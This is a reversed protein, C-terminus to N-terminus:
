WAAEIVDRLGLLNRFEYLPAPTFRGRPEGYRNIWAVQMGMPMAGELDAFQSLSVHLIQDAPVGLKEIAHKFILASPKFAKAEEATTALSFEARFPNLDFFRNDMNTIPMLPYHQKLVSIIEPVEPHPKADRTMTSLLIETLQRWREAGAEFGLPELVDRLGLLAYNFYPQWVGSRYRRVAADDWKLYLEQADFGALGCKDLVETVGAQGSTDVDVLTGWFDFTIAKFARM